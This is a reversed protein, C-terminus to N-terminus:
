NPSHNALPVDTTEDAGDLVVLPVFLFLLRHGGGVCAALDAKIAKTLYLAGSRARIHASLEYNIVSRRRLRRVSGGENLALRFENELCGLMLSDGRSKERERHLFSDAM